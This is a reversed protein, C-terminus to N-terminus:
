NSPRNEGGGPALKFATSSFRVPFTEASRDEGAWIVHGTDHDVVVTLYRHRKRYSIEDIGIRRVGQFRDEALTRRVVRQVIRGVSRWSIGYVNSVFTQSCQQACLAVLEEFQETFRGEGCAWPVL